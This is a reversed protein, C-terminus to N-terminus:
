ARSSSRETASQAPPVVRVGAEALNKKTPIKDHYEFPGATITEMRAVVFYLSIAKMVWANSRWEGGERQAVRLEGQDLAAIADFVAASYEEDELLTRDDFAAEIKERM